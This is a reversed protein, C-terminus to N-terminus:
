RNALSLVAEAVRTPDIPKSLHMQFGANTAQQQDKETAYATLAIAPLPPKGMELQRDRIQRMLTYGDEEPMSIDSVMVDPYQQNFMALAEEASAAAIIEAGCQQLALAVMERADAEDEVVLVQLGDLAPLKAAGEGMQTQRKPFTPKPQLLPLQVTFTAGQGEGLSEASVTGGHLEVLHRVIALGLGLGGQSRTMSSDVQHFREFVDPLFEPDIGKGTDSVQIQVKSEISEIRVTVGGQESTFKIANSLLNWFIQQLRESDGNVKIIDPEFQTQLQISKAEAAPRVTDLAAEMVRCVQTPQFHLQLQGSIIRSVDLLDQIMQVQINANREIVELAHTAKEPRLHGGRLMHVWGLMSNLPTRLEHSLTALFEDKMRNVKEAEARAEQERVLLQAREEEVQKRQSIDEILGDIVTEGDYTRPTISLELWLEEGNARCLQVEIAEGEGTSDAAAQTERPLQERVVSWQSNLLAQAEPQTSVGLLNLFAANGSLLRGELTARFVGMSLRNLLANLETELATVRRQAQTRQWVSQVAASLRIYHKPSKTVYDDLRAKMAAVAVEENGSATFMVVPCDPYRQKITNLITLGDSWCLQYDTIVLDFEGAEMAQTFGGADIIQEVQPNPFKRSLERIVLLRDESNDDILLLRLM